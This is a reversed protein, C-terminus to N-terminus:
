VSKSPKRGRPSRSTRSQSPSASSPTAARASRGTSSAPSPRDATIEVSPCFDNLVCSECDPKRAHCTRRGHFILRHAFITWEKRPVLPMLDQEIVVPDASATLGLRGSVRTVHTDVVIGVNKGFANGLVVNATKRGVGPLEVLKEMTQPVEGGHREVIAKSCNIVAKAKNRFFGTQKVDTEMEVLNANAFAAPDPYKRFLSKTVINVRVDTSQAALITAILLEFANMFDLEIHADPHRKKLRKNVEAARVKLDPM